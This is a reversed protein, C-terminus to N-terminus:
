SGAKTRDGRAAELRLEQVRDLVLAAVEQKPLRPLTREEGQDIITVENDEVEFGVDERSVDNVVIADLKKRELKARAREAGGPGHEAAFGVV